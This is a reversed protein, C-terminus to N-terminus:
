ANPDVLSYMADSQNAVSLPFDLSVYIQTIKTNDHRINHYLGIVSWFIPKFWIERTGPGEFTMTITQNFPRPSGFLPLKPDIDALKLLKNYRLSSEFNNSTTPAVPFTATIYCLGVETCTTPASRILKSINYGEAERVFCGGYKSDSRSYECAIKHSRPRPHNSHYSAFSMPAGSWSFAGTFKDPLEFRFFSPNHIDRSTNVAINSYATMQKDPALNRSGDLYRSTKKPSVLLAIKTVLLVVSLVVLLWAVM